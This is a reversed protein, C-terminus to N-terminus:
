KQCPPNDFRHMTTQHEASYLPSYKNWDVMTWLIQQSKQKEEGTAQAANGAL